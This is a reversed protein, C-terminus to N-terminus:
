RLAVMLLCGYVAEPGDALPSLSVEDSNGSGSTAPCSSHSSSSASASVNGALSEMATDGCEGADSLRAHCIFVRTGAPYSGRPAGFRRSDLKEQLAVSRGGGQDPHPASKRNIAARHEIAPM